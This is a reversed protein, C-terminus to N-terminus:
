FRGLPVPIAVSMTPGDFTVDITTPSPFTVDPATLLFCTGSCGNTTFTPTFSDANAIPAAIAVVMVALTIWLSKRM